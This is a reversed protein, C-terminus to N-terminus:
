KVFYRRIFYSPSCSWAHCMSNMINDHVPSIEPHGPVFVEWFTDAGYEVMKGWYNKVYEEAESMMGLKVMADVVYHHMYPTVPKISDEASLSGILAAKGEEGGIVGGLIMWVQSHVTLQGNDYRNVFMGHEKDYLHELSAKKLRDTLIRWKVADESYGASAALSSMRDLAYLLIGQVSTIKELGDAWDIFRSWGERFTIIGEDNLLSEAIELQKKAAPYLDRVTEADDPTHEFYDCLSVAFLLAYDTLYSGEDHEAGNYQFLCGPIYLVDNMCAAFLYLCRKALTRNNYLYYDTLAQIRLDGSWLRRDRKPGDEYVSQMCDRLTAAAVSDIKVLLPDTGEPLPELKSVDAGTVCRVAFHDLCFSRPSALVTIEMYRFSYRAALKVEGPAFIKVFEEQLWSSCIDGHYTGFDRELEFPLEAFRIKLHVPADLYERYHRMRFSVYGVCHEGFDFVIKDGRGFVTRDGIEGIKKAGYGFFNDAEPGLEVEAKPFVEREYLKPMNMDAMDIYHRNM